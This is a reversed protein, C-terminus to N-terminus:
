KETQSRVEKKKMGEYERALINVDVAVVGVKECVQGGALNCLLTLEKMDLKAAMGLTAMSIVSDGAGCVDSITRPSTPLLLDTSDNAYYLGKDSLTILTAKNRLREKLYAVAQQLSSITPLVKFPLMQNIERLNPKFLSTRTYAFFNKEKPDVATPIDRKLAELLIENIIELCLVGKNYDQFLIAHIDTTELISRVAKLLKQQEIDNLCHTNEEDIRLLQQNQALIRTKCTTTRNSSKFISKTSIEAEKLLQVLSKGHEDSGIVSCLYPTAGLAKINLAVNAAGGLCAKKRHVNVIPVPAEPSIRHVAGYTYHDLMIDGVILINLNKFLSLIERIDLM